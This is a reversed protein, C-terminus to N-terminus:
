VSLYFLYICKKSLWGKPWNLLYTTNTPLNGEGRAGWLSFLPWNTVKIDCLLYILFNWLKIIVLSTHSHLLLTCSLVLPCKSMNAGNGKWVRLRYIPIILFFFFFVKITLHIHDGLSLSLWAHLNWKLVSLYSHHLPRNSLSTILRSGQQGAAQWGLGGFQQMLIM